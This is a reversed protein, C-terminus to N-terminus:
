PEFAMSYVNRLGRAWIARWTGSTVGAFPGDAPIRGDREIRLVKGGTSRLSQSRTPDDSEGTGVYLRHDPGLALGGGVHKPAADADLELLLAGDGARATDRTADYRVVRGHRTPTRVTYLVFLETHGRTGAACAIGVLGEEVAAAAPLTVFPRPL